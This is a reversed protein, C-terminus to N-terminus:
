VMSSASSSADDGDNQKMAMISDQTYASVLESGAGIGVTVPINSVGGMALAFAYTAGGVIAPQLFRSEAYQKKSDNDMKSLAYQTLTSGGLSALGAALGFGINSDVAMGYVNLPVSEYGLAYKTVAYAIGGTLLSRTANNSFDQNSM